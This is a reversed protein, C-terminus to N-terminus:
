SGYKLKTLKKREHDLQKRTAALALRLVESTRRQIGFQHAFRWNPKMGGAAEHSEGSDDDVGETSQESSASSETPDGNRPQHSQRDM